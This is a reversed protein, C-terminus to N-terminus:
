RVLTPLFKLIARRARGWPAPLLLQGESRGLPGDQFKGGGCAARYSPRSKKDRKRARFLAEQTPCPEKFDGTIDSYLIALGNRPMIAILSIMKRRRDRRAIARTETRVTVTPPAAGDVAKRRRGVKRDLSLLSLLTTPRISRTANVHRPARAPPFAYLATSAAQGLVKGPCGSTRQCSAAAATPPSM